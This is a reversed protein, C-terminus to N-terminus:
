LVKPNRFRETRKNLHHPKKVKLALSATNKYTGFQVLHKKNAHIAVFSPSCLDIHPASLFLQWNRGFQISTANRIWQRFTHVSSRRISAFGICRGGGGRSYRTQKSKAFLYVRKSRILSSRAFFICMSVNSMSSYTSFPLISLVPCIWNRARYTAAPGSPMRIHISYIKGM